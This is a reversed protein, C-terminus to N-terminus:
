SRGTLTWNREPAWWGPCPGSLESLPHDHDLLCRAGAWITGRFVPTPETASREGREGPDSQQGDEHDLIALAHGESEQEPAESPREPQERQYRRQDSRQNPEPQAHHSTMSTAHSAPFGSLASRSNSHSFAPGGM